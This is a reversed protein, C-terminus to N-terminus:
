RYAAAALMAAVRSKMNGPLMVVGHGETSVTIGHPQLKRRLKHIVVDLSRPAPEDSLGYLVMQLSAKPTAGRKLLYGLVQAESPTLGFISILPAVLGALGAEIVAVRSSLEEFARELRRLADKPDEAAHQPGHASALGAQQIAAISM